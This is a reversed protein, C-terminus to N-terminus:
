SLLKRYEKFTHSDDIVELIESGDEIPQVTAITGTKRDELSTEQSRGLGQWQRYATEFDRTVTIIKGKLGVFFLNPSKGDGVMSTAMEEFEKIKWM